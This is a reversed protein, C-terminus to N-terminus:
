IDFVFVLQTSHAYISFFNVYHLGILGTLINSRLLAISFFIEFSVSGFEHTLDEISEFFIVRLEQSGRLESVKLELDCDDSREFGRRKGRAPM